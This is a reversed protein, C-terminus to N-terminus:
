FFNEELFPLIDNYDRVKKVINPYQDYYPKLNESEVIVLDTGLESACRIGSLSDEFILPHDINLRKEADRFMNVKDKYSGDDYVIDSLKLWRDLQFFEM